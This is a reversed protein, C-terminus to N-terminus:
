GRARYTGAADQGLMDVIYNVSRGRKVATRVLHHVRPADSTSIALMLRKHDSTRTQFTAVSRATNLVACNATDRQSRHHRHRASSQTHTIHQNGAGALHLDTRSARAIMRQLAPRHQLM